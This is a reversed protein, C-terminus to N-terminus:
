MIERLVELTKLPRFQEIHLRYYTILAELLIRRQESNIGLDQINHRNSKLLKEFALSAQIDLFYASQPQEMFQGERLDFYSAEKRSPNPMFGIYMSLEVLFLLHTNSINGELLDLSLYWGELFSFLEPNAENELISNKSVELMFLGISSKVIDFPLNQYHKALKVEKLRALKGDGKDYALIDLISMLQFLGAKMKSTKSRVGSVIFSRMGKEETYIDVILSTEGYKMTRFVIGRSKFLTSSM